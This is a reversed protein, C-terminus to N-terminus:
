SAAARPKRYEILMINMAARFVREDYLISPLLASSNQVSSRHLNRTGTTAHCCWGRSESSRLRTLLRLARERYRDCEQTAGSHHDRNRTERQERWRSMERRKRASLPLQSRLVLQPAKEM